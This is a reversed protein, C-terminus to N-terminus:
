NENEALRISDPWGSSDTARVPAALCRALPAALLLQFINNLKFVRYVSFSVSLTLLGVVATGAM